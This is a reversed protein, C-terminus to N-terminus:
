NYRFILQFSPTHLLFIYVDAKVFYKIACFDSFLRIGVCAYTKKQDQIAFVSLDPDTTDLYSNFLPTDLLFIYVDTKVFYKVASFDSFLRISVCAYTKKQDQIAFVSLDPDTTDLYSNLLPPICCFFICM